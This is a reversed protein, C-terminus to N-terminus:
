TASISLNKEYNDKSQKMLYSSISRLEKVENELSLTESLVSLIAGFYKQEHPPLPQPNLLVEEGVSISFSSESHIKFDILEEHYYPKPHVPWYDDDYDMAKLGAEFLSKGVAHLAKSANADTVKQAISKIVASAILNRVNESVVPIHPTLADIAEPNLHALFLLTSTQTLLNM